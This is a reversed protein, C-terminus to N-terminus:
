EDDEQCTWRDRLWIYHGQCYPLLSTNHLNAAIIGGVGPWYVEVYDLELDREIRLHPWPTQKFESTKRRPRGWRYVTLFQTGHPRQRRLTLTTSSRILRITATIQRGPTKHQMM